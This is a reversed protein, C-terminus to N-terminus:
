LAWEVSAWIKRTDTAFAKANYDAYKLTFTTRKLKAAIQAGFETGYHQSLRDSNYDHYNASLSISDLGAVKAKTYGLTAYLDQLGNPPTVLFKDTWGNFKHLTAYPTQFSTLAVGEDAGLLEYGGLLKFGKAEV